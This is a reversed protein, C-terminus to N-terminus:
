TTGLCGRIEYVFRSGLDERRSLLWEGDRRSGLRWGVSVLEAEISASISPTQERIYLPRQNHSM